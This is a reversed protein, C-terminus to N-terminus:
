CPIIRCNHHQLHNHLNLHIELNSSPRRCPPKLEASSVFHTLHRHHLGGDLLQSPAGFSAFLLGLIPRRSSLGISCVDEPSRRSLQSLGQLTAVWDLNPLLPNFGGPGQPVIKSTVTRILVLTMCPTRFHLSRLRHRPSASVLRVFHTMITMDDWTIVIYGRTFLWM